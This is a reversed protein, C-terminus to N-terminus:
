QSIMVDSIPRSVCTLVHDQGIDAETLLSSEDLKVEGSVKLMKCSGCVGSRCSHDLSIGAAEAAELITQGAKAPFSAGSGRVTITTGASKSVPAAWSKQSSIPEIKPTTTGVSRPAASVAAAGPKSLLSGVPVAAVIQPSSAPSAATGPSLTSAITARAPMSGTASAIRSSGLPSGAPLAKPQPAAPQPSAAQAPASAVPVPKSPVQGSGGFSEDHYRNTPLGLSMLLAKAAGMYGPPGCVFTEREAFDPAFLRLLGESFHGVPGHWHAGAPVSSPVIALRMKDGLRANLHLLEQHFIIDNPTRVNNIFVIDARTSTDALWRLMSMTPTIGSGAALFLLKEAPHDVCTFKGAPGIVACELGEAMHNYLWNSMWGMPVKKVTVSLTYPRSPSSSITYSRRLVAGDIPVEITVFQGPKYHFLTPTEAVFVYTKTDHTEDVVSVCRVKTKGAAWVETESPSLSAAPWSPAAALVEAALANELATELELNSKEIAAAQGEEGNDLLSILESRAKARWQEGVTPNSRSSNGELRQLFRHLDRLLHDARDPGLEQRLRKVEENIFAGDINFLKDEYSAWFISYRDKLELLSRRLDDSRIWETENLLSHFKRVDQATIKSETDAIFVFMSFILRPIDVSENQAIPNMITM